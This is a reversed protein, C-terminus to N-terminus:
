NTSGPRPIANKLMQLPYDALSLGTLVVQRVMLSWGVSAAHRLEYFRAAILRTDLRDCRCSLLIRSAWVPKFLGIDHWHAHWCILVPVFSIRHLEFGGDVCVCWFLTQKEIDSPRAPLCVVCGCGPLTAKRGQEDIQQCVAVLRHLTSLQVDAAHGVGGHSEYASGGRM